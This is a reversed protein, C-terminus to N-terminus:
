FRQSEKYLEQTPFEKVRTLKAAHTPAAYLKRTHSVRSGPVSIVTGNLLEVRWLDGRELITGQFEQGSRLKVVDPERDLNPRISTPEPNKHMHRSVYYTLSRTPSPTAFPSEPEDLREPADVPPMVAQIMPYNKGIDTGHREQLISPPTMLPRPPGDPGGATAYAAGNFGGSGPLTTQQRNQNTTEALSRGPILPSSPTAVPAAYRQNAIMEAQPLIVPATASGITKGLMSPAPSAAPPAPVTASFGTAEPMTVPPAQLSPLEVAQLDPAVEGPAQEFPNIAGSPAAPATVPSQSPLTPLGAPAPQSPLTPLGAPSAPAPQAPPMQDVLAMSAPAPQGPQVLDGPMPVRPQSPLNPLTLVGEAAGPMPGPPPLAASNSAAAAADLAGPAPQAQLHTTWTVLSCGLFTILLTLNPSKM